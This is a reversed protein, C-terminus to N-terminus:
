WTLDATFKGRAPPTSGESAASSEPTDSLIIINRKQLRLGEKELAHSGPSSNARLEGGASDSM